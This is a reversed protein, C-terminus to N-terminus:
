LRAVEDTTAPGGNQVPKPYGAARPVTSLASRGKPKRAVHKTVVGLESASPPANM